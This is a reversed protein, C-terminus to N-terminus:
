HISENLGGIKFITYIVVFGAPVRNVSYTQHPLHALGRIFCDNEVEKNIESLSQGFDRFITYFRIVKESERKRWHRLIVGDFDVYNTISHRIRDCHDYHWSRVQWRKEHMLRACSERLAPYKKRISKLTHIDKFLRRGQDKM